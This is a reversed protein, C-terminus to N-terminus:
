NVVVSASALVGITTDDAAQVVAKIYYTGAISPWLGFYPPSSSSGSTLASTTGSEILSDGASVSLNSDLSAYVSWSISSSGAGGGTNKVTFTGSVPGGKASGTPLPVATVTYTPGAVAVASGSAFVGGSPDDTSQVEVKIYYSGAITPWTGAYTPSPSSSAGPGLAPTTGGSEILTDGTTVASTSNLSAYVSWSVPSSGTGGGTNKVTFTGSVAGGATNGTPLPIATVAYTPGAVAVASGPAYVGGLPDDNSLVKVKIFYSGAVTPWTGSYAPSSGPPGPPLAPTTGSEILTDGTTIATTSNLSAYVSWSILSSGTGTGTNKVTFSGSVAGGATSGAPPPVATVTYIPGAVAVASVSSAMGVTADDAAQVTAVIYYSGALSPWVGAYPLSISATSALAPTTGSAILSDGASLTTAPSAYVAWSILSTGNGNGSNSITFNGNVASGTTNSGTPAGVAVTYLPGSVIIPSSALVKTGTGATDDFASVKAVFYYTGPTTPYNGTGPFPLSVSAASALAPTTGSVLAIDQAGITTKPLLYVAWSIPYSGPGAGIDKIILTQSAIASASQVLTTALPSLSTISYAPSASGTVAIAPSITQNNAPNVDDAATIVIIVYYSAAAAPWNGSYSILKSVSSAGLAALTGNQVPLSLSDLAGDRSLSVQWSLADSGAQSSINEIKFSGTFAAGGAGSVPYTTAPSLAVLYDPGTKDEVYLLSQASAGTGDTVQLTATGATAPATYVRTASNFTGPGGGVLSFSYNGDGGSVTLTLSGGVLLTASAPSIKLSGAAAAGNKGEMLTRFFGNSCAAASALALLASFSAALRFHLRPPRKM